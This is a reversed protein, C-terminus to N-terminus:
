LELHNCLHFAETLWDHTKEPPPQWTRSWGLWQIALQLRCYELDELLQSLYPRGPEPLADHYAEVITRRNDESWAGAVLASLDTLGPGVGANEWDIPVADSAGESQRILVNTAYFEGHILTRPLALLRDLVCDYASAVRQLVHRRLRHAEDGMAATFDISRTLWTRYFPEDHVVLSEPLNSAAEFRAHFRALWRAVAKWVEIEGFQHLETGAIRDIFLWYSGTVPDVISGRYTAGLRAPRLVQEYVDIERRPNYLLAPKAKRAEPLLRDWALDKFVLQLPAGDSLELDLEEVPFSSRYAHPRRELRKVKIGLAIQVAETLEDGTPSSARM